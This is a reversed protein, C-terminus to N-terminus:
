RNRDTPGDPVLDRDWQWQFDSPLPYVTADKHGVLALAARVNGARVYGMQLAPTHRDAAIAFTYCPM